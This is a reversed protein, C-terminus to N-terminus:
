LDTEVCSKLVIATFKDHIGASNDTRSLVLLAKLGLLRDGTNM